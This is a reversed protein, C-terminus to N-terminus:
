VFADVGDPNSIAVFRCRLSCHLVQILNGFLIRQVNFVSLGEYEGGHGCQSGFNNVPAPYAWDYVDKLRFYWVDEDPFFTKRCFFANKKGFFTKKGDDPFLKEAIFIFKKKGFFTKQRRWWPFFNKPLFFHM